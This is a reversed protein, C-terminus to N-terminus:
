GTSHTSTNFVRVEILEDSLVNCARDVGFYVVRGEGCISGRFLDVPSPASDPFRINLSYAIFVIDLCGAWTKLPIVTADCVKM